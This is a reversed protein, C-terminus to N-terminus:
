GFLLVFMFIYSIYIIQVYVFMCPRVSMFSSFVLRVCYYQYSNSRIKFYLKQSGISYSILSDNSPDIPSGACAKRSGYKTPAMM